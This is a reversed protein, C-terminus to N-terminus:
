LETTVKSIVIGFLGFVAVFGATLAASVKLARGVASARSTGDDLGVFASLYAPLLAFGCPNVTAVMGATFALAFSGTLM